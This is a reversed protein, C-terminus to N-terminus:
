IPLSPLNIGSDLLRSTEEFGAVRHHLVVRAWLLSKRATKGYWREGEIVWGHRCGYGGFAEEVFVAEEGGGGRVAYGGTGDGFVVDEGPFGQDLAGFVCGKFAPDERSFQLEGFVVREARRLHLEQALNPMRVTGVDGGNARAYRPQGGGGGVM